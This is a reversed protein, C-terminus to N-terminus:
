PTATASPASSPGTGVANTATVTFTYGTSHTLGLVTCSTTASSCTFAGPSSTVTYSTVASGGNAAPATWSVVSQTNGGNTGAVGTPAGPTGVTISNSSASVAGNGNANKATVTFTYATGSTLGTFVCTVSAGTLSTSCAAPPAVVPSSAVTFGTLGSGGNATPIAWTITATTNSATAVATVATPAGPRGTTVAASATSASGSGVGNTATVTFTYSTNAALGTFVCNTSAGTLSTSCAAPPAVV